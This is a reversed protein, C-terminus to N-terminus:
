DNEDVDFCVKFLKEMDLRDTVDIDFDKKKKQFEEITQMMECFEGTSFEKTVKM